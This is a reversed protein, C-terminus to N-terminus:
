GPSFLLSYGTSFFLLLVHDNVGDKYRRFFTLIADISLYASSIHMQTTYITTFSKNRPKGEVLVFEICCLALKFTFM